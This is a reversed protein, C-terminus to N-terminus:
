RWKTKQNCYGADVGNQKRATIDEILAMKNKQYYCKSNVNNQKRTTIDEM